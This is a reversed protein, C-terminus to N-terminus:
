IILPAIKPRLHTVILQIIITTPEMCFKPPGQLWQKNNLHNRHKNRRM